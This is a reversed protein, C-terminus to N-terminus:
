MGPSETKRCRISFSSTLLIGAGEHPAAASLKPNDDHEGVNQGSAEEESGPNSGEGLLHEMYAINERLLANRRMATELEECLLENDRELSANLRQTAEVESVKIFGASLRRSREGSASPPRAAPQSMGLAPPMEPMEPAEPMPTRAVGGTALAPSMDYAPQLFSPRRESASRRAAM